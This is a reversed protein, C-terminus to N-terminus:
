RNMGRDNNTNSFNKTFKLLFFLSFLLFSAESVRTLNLLVCVCFMELWYKDPNFYKFKMYSVGLFAAVFSKKRYRPQEALSASLIYYRYETKLDRVYLRIYLM